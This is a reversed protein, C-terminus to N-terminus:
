ASRVIKGAQEYIAHMTRENRLATLISKIAIDKSARLLSTKSIGFRAHGLESLQQKTLTGDKLIREVEEGSLSELDDSIPSATRRLRSADAKVSGNQDRRNGGDPKSNRATQSPACPEWVFPLEARKDTIALEAIPRSGHDSLMRSLRRLEGSLAPNGTKEEQLKQAERDLYGAVDAASLSEDRKQPERNGTHKRRATNM